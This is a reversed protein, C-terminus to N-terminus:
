TEKVPIGEGEGTLPKMFEPFTPHLKHHFLVVGTYGIQKGGSEWVRKGFSLDEGLRIKKGQDGDVLEREFWHWPAPYKEKFAELIRRNMLCWGTGGAYIGEYIKNPKLDDMPVAYFSEPDKTFISNSFTGLSYNGWVVDADFNQAVWMTRSIADKEFEIDADVMLLYETDDKLALFAEVIKNRAEDTYPSPLDIVRRVRNGEYACARALAYAFRAAVLGWHHFGVVVHPARM